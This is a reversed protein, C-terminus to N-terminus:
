GSTGPGSWAPSPRSKLGSTLRVNCHEKCKKKVCLFIYKFSLSPQFCAMPDRYTCHAWRTYPCCQVGGDRLCSSPEIKIFRACSQVGGAGQQKPCLNSACTLINSPNLQINNCNVTLLSYKQKEIIIQKYKVHSSCDSITRSVRM